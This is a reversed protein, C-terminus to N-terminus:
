IMLNKTSANTQGSWLIILFFCILLSEELVKFYPVADVRAHLNHNTTIEQPEADVMQETINVFFLRDIIPIIWHFGPHAFKQYKGLREVLGRQTPRVIRIGAFFIFVASAIIIYFISTNM